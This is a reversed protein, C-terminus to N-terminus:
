DMIVQAYKVLGHLVEIYSTHDKAIGKDSATM